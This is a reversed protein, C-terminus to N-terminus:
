FLSTPLEADTLGWSYRLEADGAKYGYVRMTLEAPVDGSITIYENGYQGSVGAWGSARWRRGCRSTRPCSSRRANSLDGHQVNSSRLTDRRHPSNFM